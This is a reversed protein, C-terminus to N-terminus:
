RSLDESSVSPLGSMDSRGGCGQYRGNHGSFWLGSRVEPVHEVDAGLSSVSEGEDGLRKNDEVSGVEEILKNIVESGSWMIFSKGRYKWAYPKSGKKSWEEMMAGYREIVPRLFAEMADGSGFRYTYTSSEKVSKTCGWFRGVERYNEPVDKQWRKGLYGIMYSTIEDKGRVAEIGTGAKLHLEDGSGVIRYWARSLREKDVSEPLLINIHPAGRRQFELGWFMDKIGQRKVWRKFAQIDRKVKRGDVPYEKPYTLVVFYRWLAASDELALRMRRESRFSFGAVNGRSSGSVRSPTVRGSDIIVETSKEHLKFTVQFHSISKM